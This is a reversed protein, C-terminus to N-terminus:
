APKILISCGIMVMVSVPRRRYKIQGLTILQCDGLQGIEQLLQDLVPSLTEILPVNGTDAIPAIYQEGPRGGENPPGSIARDRDRSSFSFGRSRQPLGSCRNRIRAM